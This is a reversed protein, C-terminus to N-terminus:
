KKQAGQFCEKTIKRGVREKDLKKATRSWGLFLNARNMDKRFVTITVGTKNVKHFSGSGPPIGVNLVGSRAWGEGLCLGCESM